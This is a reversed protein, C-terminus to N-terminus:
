GRFSVNKLDWCVVMSQFRALCVDDCADAALAAIILAMRGCWSRLGRGLIRLCRCRGRLNTRGRLLNEDELM